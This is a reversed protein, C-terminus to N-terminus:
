ENKIEKAVQFFREVNEEPTGKLIGHSLNLIHCIGLAKARAVTDRVAREVELKTGKLLIEPDVNGQFVLKEPDGGARMVAEKCIRVAAEMPPDHPLSVVDPCLAAVKGLVHGCNKVFLILPLDPRMRRVEDIVKKLYPAALSDFEESSLVGAWSDFIQVAQAGQDAQYCAYRAVNSALRRQLEHFAEPHNAAMKRTEAFTRTVGGEIIYSALTFPAGVFGLVAADDKVEARLRCLTEGVFPVATAPDLVGVTQVGRMDRIPSPIVPSPTMLFPVNMGPLPTLIDSFLIVGDPQFSRFPQLSIDYALDANESRDRFNPVRLCLDRYIKQYRGAQRMLWVPSRGAEKAASIDGKLIRALFPGKSSSM